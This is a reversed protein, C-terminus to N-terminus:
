FLSLNNPRQPKPPLPASTAPATTAPDTQPAPATPATAITVDGTPAEQNGTAAATALASRAQTAKLEEQVGIGTWAAHILHEIDGFLGSTFRPASGDGGISILVPRQERPGNHPQVTITVIVVQNELPDSLTLTNM